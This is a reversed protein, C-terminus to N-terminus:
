GKSKLLDTTALNILSNRCSPIQTLDTLIGDEIAQKSTYTYITEGWFDDKKTM